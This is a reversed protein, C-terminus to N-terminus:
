SFIFAAHEMSVNADVALNRPTEVWFVGIGRRSLTSDGGESLKCHGIYNSHMVDLLIKKHQPICYMFLEKREKM